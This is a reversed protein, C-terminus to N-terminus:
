FSGERSFRALALATATADGCGHARARTRAVRTRAACHAGKPRSKIQIQRMDYKNGNSQIILQKMQTFIQIELDQFIFDVESLMMREKANFVLFYQHWQSEM